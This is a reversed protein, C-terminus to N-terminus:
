LHIVMLILIPILFRSYTYGTSYFRYSGMIRTIPPPQKLTSTGANFKPHLLLDLTNPLDTLLGIKLLEITGLTGASIVCVDYYHLSTQGSNLSQIAWRNCSTRSISLVRSNLLLRISSDLPISSGRLPRDLVFTLQARSSHLSQTLDDKLAIFAERLPSLNSLLNPNINSRSDDLSRVLGGTWLESTGGLGQNLTITKLADNVRLSSISNHTDISLRNDGAEYISVCFKDCSLQNALAIAPLTAGIICVSPM